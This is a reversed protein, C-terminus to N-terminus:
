LGKISMNTVSKPQQKKFDLFNILSNIKTREESSIPLENFNTYVYSLFNTIGLSARQKRERRYDDNNYPSYLAECVADITEQLLQGNSYGDAKCLDSLITAITYQVHDMSIVLNENPTNEYYQSIMAFSLLAFERATSLYKNRETNNKLSYAYNMHCKAEQHLFNFNCALDNHLKSYIFLNLKLNGGYEDLFIDNMVDFMIYDRCLRRRKYEDQGSIEIICKIIYQYAEAIKPHNAENRAFIGLERRLWYKSNLTYKINSLDTPDKEFTSTEIREIFPIYRKSAEVIEQDLAFNVIESSYISEKIALIILLVLQKSSNIKLHINSYRGKSKLMKETYILQDLLTRKYSYPPLKISPMIKNISDVESGKEFKNNLTYRLVFSNIYPNQNVKWKIIGHIDSDNANICIVFNCKNKNIYDSYLLIKEFQERSIAGIDLLVVTNKCDLLRSFAKESLRSKGDLFIVARDRIKSYVDALLYSKGSVRSGYVLHIKNQTLQNIITETVNRSIFYYPYTIKKGKLDLLGKGWFFFERNKDVEDAKIRSISVNSDM